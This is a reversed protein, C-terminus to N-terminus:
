MEQQQHQNTSHVLIILALMYIKYRQKKQRGRRILKGNIIEPKFVIHKMLNEM